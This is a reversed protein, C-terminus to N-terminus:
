GAGSCPCIKGSFRLGYGDGQGFALQVTGEGECDFNDLMLADYQAGPDTTENNASDKIKQRVTLCRQISRRFAYQYMSDGGPLVTTPTLSWLDGDPSTQVVNWTKNIMGDLNYNIYPYKGKGIAIPDPVNQMMIQNFTDALDQGQNQRFDMSDIRPWRFWTGKTSDGAFIDTRRSLRTTDIYQFYWKTRLLSDSMNVFALEDVTINRNQVSDFYTRQYIYYPLFTSDQTKSWEGTLINLYVPAGWWGEDWPAVKQQGPTPTGTTFRTPDWPFFDKGYRYWLYVSDWSPYYHRPLTDHSFKCHVRGPYMRGNQYFFHYSGRDQAIADPWVTAMNGSKPAAYSTCQPAFNDDMDWRRWTKRSKYNVQTNRFDVTDRPGCQRKHNPALLIMAPPNEIRAFPGTVYVGYGRKTLSNLLNWSVLTKSRAHGAPYMAMPNSGSFYFIPREFKTKFAYMFSDSRIFVNIFPDANESTDPNFVTEYVPNLKRVYNIYEL